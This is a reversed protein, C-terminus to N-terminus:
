TTEPQPKVKIPTSELLRSSTLLLTKTLGKPSVSQKDSFKNSIAISPDGTHRRFGAIITLAALFLLAAQILIGAKRRLIPPFPLMTSNLPAYRNYIGGCM